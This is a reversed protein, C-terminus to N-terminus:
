FRMLHRALSVSASVSMGFNLQVLQCAMSHLQVQLEVLPWEVRKAYPMRKLTTLGSFRPSRPLRPPARLRGSPACGRTGLVGVKWRPRVYRRRQSVHGVPSQPSNAHM